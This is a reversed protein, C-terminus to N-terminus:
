FLHPQLAKITKVVADDTNVAAFESDLSIDKITKKYRLIRYVKYKIGPKSLLIYVIDKANEPEIIDLIEFGKAYKYFPIGDNMELKEIIPLVDQPKQIKM